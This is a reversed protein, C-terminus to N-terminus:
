VVTRLKARRLRRGNGGLLSLTASIDHLTSITEMARLRDRNSNKRNSAIESMASLGKDIEKCILNRLANM